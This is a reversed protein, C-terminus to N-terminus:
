GFHEAPVPRGLLYGSASDNGLARLAELQENTEIGEAITRLGLAHALRVIADAAARGASLDLQQVFSRDIKLVDIPLASLRALSSYGTGFDDIAIAVGAASLEDLERATVTEDALATETVEVGLRECALGADALHQLITSSLGPAKMQVPSVNIWIRFEPLQSWKQAQECARALLQEGLRGILGCEEALPIFVSPPVPGRTGHNWRALAEAGELRSGDASFVPQYHLVIQNQDVAQRLDVQLAIRDLVEAHAQADFWATTDRGGDKARYMAVDADRLLTDFTQRDHPGAAAIGLSATLALTRGGIRYPERLAHMLRTSTEEAAAADADHLVVAFEDGGLRAVMSGHRMCETLRRGTEVLVADGAERGLGDNVSKFGDLDVFLVAVPRDCPGIRDQALRGLESRNLLGTLPDHAAQHALEVRVDEADQRAQSEAALLQEREAQQARRATVDQFYVVMGDANPQANVEMWMDFPAPYFEEFSVAVGDQMVRGYATEFQTGLADPFSEWLNRGILETRSMGLLLEARANMYTFRWERDVALFGDSISELVDAARASAEQATTVDIIVGVMKVPVGEADHEIQTARSLVHRVSGDDLIIRYLDEAERFHAFTDIVREQDDPHARRLWTQFPSEDRGGAHFIRALTDDWCLEQTIPNWEFVGIGGRGATTDQTSPLAPTMRARRSRTDQSGRQEPSFVVHRNRGAAKADYMATDADRLLDEASAGPAPLAVGISVTLSYQDNGDLFPECLSAAIRRAVTEAVAAPEEGHAVEVLVVFEDGGLRGVTDGGRAAASLRSGAQELVRDGVAHGHQDNIRKFGDLDCFLVAFRVGADVAAGPHALADSLRRLVLRRNPLGTLDDYTAARELREETAVADTVDRTVGLLHTVAGAADRRFPTLRRMIWRLSGDAHRAQHRLEVTDGDALERVQEGAADVASHEGFSIGHDRAGDGPRHGDESGYGLLASVSGSAWDPQQAGLQLVHIIDPSAALVAAQFEHAERVSQERARRDSIDQIQSIFHLPEDDDALVLTVALLAWLLGGSATRYRKEMQYGNIEGLLLRALHGLDADLDDPHTIDQFTLAQLTDQQYGLLRCLAANVERLRGDLGVIAMGIPANDFALLFRQESERAKHEAPLMRVADADCDSAERM